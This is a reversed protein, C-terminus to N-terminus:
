RIGNELWRKKLLLIVLINLVAIGLAYALCLPIHPMENATFTSLDTINRELDKYVFGNQEFFQLFRLFENSLAVYLAVLSYIFSVFYSRIFTGLICALMTYFSFYTVIVAVFHLLMSLFPRFDGFHLCTVSLGITAGLTFFLILCLDKAVFYRVSGMGLDRYFLISKESFDLCVYSAALAPLIFVGLQTLVVYTGLLTGELDVGDPYAPIQMVYGLAFLGMSLAVTIPLYVGHSFRRLEVLM